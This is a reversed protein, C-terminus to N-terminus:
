FHDICDVLDCDACNGYDGSPDNSFIPHRSGSSFWWWTIQAGPTRGRSVPGNHFPIVCLCCLALM